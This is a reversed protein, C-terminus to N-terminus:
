EKGSENKKSKEEKKKRQKRGQLLTCRRCSISAAAAQNSVADVVAAPTCPSPERKKRLKREMEKEDIGHSKKEKKQLVPSV